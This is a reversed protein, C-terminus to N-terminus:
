GPTGLVCVPQRVDDVLTSSHRWSAAPFELSHHRFLSMLVTMEFHTFANFFTVAPILMFRVNAYRNLDVLPM